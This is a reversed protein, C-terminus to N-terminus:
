PAAMCQRPVYLCQVFPDLNPPIQYPPSNSTHLIERDMHIKSVMLYSYPAILEKMM